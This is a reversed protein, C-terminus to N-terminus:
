GQGRDKVMWGEGQSAYASVHYEREGQIPRPSLNCKNMVHTVTTM